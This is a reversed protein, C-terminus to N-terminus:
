EYKFVIPMSFNTKVAKGNQKGPSWKPMNKVLRLAEEDCGYGIGRIVLPDSITSDENVVFRVIVKGEVKKEKAASPYHLNESYYKQLSFNPTPMQDVYTFVPAPDNHPKTSSAGPLVGPDISDPDGKDVKTNQAYMIASSFIFLLLLSLKKM